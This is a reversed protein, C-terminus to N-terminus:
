NWKPNRLPVNNNKIRISYFFCCYTKKRIRKEFAAFIVSIHRKSLATIKLKFIPGFRYRIHVRLVFSPQHSSVSHTVSSMCDKWIEPIWHVHDLSIRSTFLVGSKWINKEFNISKSWSLLGWKPKQERWQSASLSKYEYMWKPIWKALM